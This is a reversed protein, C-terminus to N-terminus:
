GLVISVAGILGGAVLTAVRWRPSRDLFWAVALAAPVIFVIGYRPPLVVYQGVLVFSALALAPGFVVGAVLTAIAVSSRVRRRTEVAVAILAGAGLVGFVGAMLASWASPNMGTEGLRNLYKVAETVLNTATMPTQRYDVVAPPGVASSGRIVLWAVQAGAGLVVAVVAAIVERGGLARVRAGSPATRLAWIVLALAAVAVAGLNQVKFAVAVVAVMPFVWPGVRRRATAVASLGIAASLALTPADTSIFQTAWYVSPLAVLAAAVGFAVSAAVRLSRFLAYSLCLGAALWIAGVWRGADVLDSGLLTFPQALTWTTTFYPPAYIDAGTGGAYPYAEDRDHAGTDCGEGFSGMGLVGRCSLENRADAGVEDGTRVFGDSPVKSLYDYYVYEDYQSFEPHEHAQVATYGFALLALVVYPLWRARSLWERVRM